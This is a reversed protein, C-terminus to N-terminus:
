HVKSRRRIVWGGERDTQLEGGREAAHSCSCKLQFPYCVRLLPLCSIVSRQRPFEPAFPDRHLPRTALTNRQCRILGFSRWCFLLVEGHRPAFWFPGDQSSPAAWASSRRVVKNIDGNIFWQSRKFGSILVNVCPNLHTSLSNRLPCLWGRCITFESYKGKIECKPGRQSVCPHGVGQKSIARLPSLDRWFSIHKLASHPTQSECNSHHPGHTWTGKFDVDPQLFTLSHSLSM